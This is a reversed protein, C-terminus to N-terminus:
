LSLPVVPRRKPFDYAHMNLRQFLGSEQSAWPDGPSLPGAPAAPGMPIGPRGPGCPGGPGAPSFPAGTLVAESAPPKDRGRHQGRGPRKGPPPPPSLPTPATQAAHGPTKISTWPCTGPTALKKCPTAQAVPTSPTCQPQARGTVGVRRHGRRTPMPLPPLLTDACPRLRPSPQPHGTHISRLGWGEPRPERGTQTPSFHINLHHTRQRDPPRHPSSFAAGPGESLWRRPSHDGRGSAKHFSRPLPGAPPQTDTFPTLSGRTTEIGRSFGHCGREQAGRGLYSVFRGKRGPRERAGAM